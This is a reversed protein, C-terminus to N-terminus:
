ASTVPPTVSRRSLTDLIRVGPRSNILLLKRELTTLRSPQEALVPSLMQRVGFEEAGEGKLDIATISGEIVQVRITGNDIDQPPVIARSLHFGAARYIESIGAAIVALDAQSVKRGVYPQYAPALQDRPIATAGVISIQRLVFLPRPDAAPMAPRALKPVPLRPRGAASRELQEGSFRQDFQRPDYAPTAQEAHVPAASVLMLFAAAGLTLYAVRRCATRKVVSRNDFHTVAVQRFTRLHM